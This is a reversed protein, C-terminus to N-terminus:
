LSPDVLSRVPLTTQLELVVLQAVILLEPKTLGAAVTDPTQLVVTLAAKPVTVGAVVVTVTVEPVGVDIVRVAEVVVGAFFLVTVNLASAVKGFLLVWVSMVVDTVQIFESVVSRVRVLPLPVPVTEALAAVPVAILTVAVKPPTSLLVTAKVTCHPSIPESFAPLSKTEENDGYTEQYARAM